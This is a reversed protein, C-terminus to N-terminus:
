EDEDVKEAAAKALNESMTKLEAVTRRIEDRQKRWRVLFWIAVGIQVVGYGFVVTGLTLVGKWVLFALVLVVLWLGARLASKLPIHKDWQWKLSVNM